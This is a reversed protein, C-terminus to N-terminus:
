NSRHPMLVEAEQSVACSGRLLVLHCYYDLHKRENYKQDLHGTTMTLPEDFPEDNNDGRDVASLLAAPIYLSRAVLM